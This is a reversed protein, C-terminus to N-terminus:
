GSMMDVDSVKLQDLDLGAWFRDWLGRSSRDKLLLLVMNDATVDVSCHDGAIKCGDAFKLCLSYHIPFGGSGKSTCRLQVETASPFTKQVSEMTVSKVKLVFSVTEADQTYTFEPLTFSIRPAFQRNGNVAAPSPSTESIMEPKGNQEKHIDTSNSIVEILPRPPSNEDATETPMDTDDCGPLSPTEASLVPLTVTLVRKQKDFKASGESEDVPFPLPLDLKYMAPTKSELLLKREFIDLNAQAASNLLPLEIKIVLEKPRTSPKADRANRYEQMDVESRHTISYKPVTGDGGKSPELKSKQKADNEEKKQQQRDYADDREKAREASTKDEYPYPMNELLGSADQVNQPGAANRSRKVTAQPVGKFQMNPRKINKKDLQVGFQREIGDLATDEVMKKFRANSEAMRYTDPHVVFDFVKCREKSKDLDERPPAFSHPIQWMLGNKGDSGRERRSSPKDIKDCKSINIFAKTEGDVSTKLVYGPEPKIFTVDMGRERELQAIEEEYRRRNEPDSIEEAYERFLERFKEDKLAEGLRKIEDQSLNLDRLKSKNDAM